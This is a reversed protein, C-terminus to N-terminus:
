ASAEQHRCRRDLPGQAAALACMFARLRGADKVGPSREVGSSVDVGYPRVRQVAAAINGAYLGGALILPRPGPPIRNWDFSRGTGGPVEPSFADVLIGAAGVYANPSPALPAGDGGIRLAKLYPRQWRACFDPAEQGHFQLLSLPAVALTEEVLAPEPDVFLGVTTVFPPLCACIEAAMQASVARPSPPYFVFGLADAGADVALEADRSSTIGCIKVRIRTQM